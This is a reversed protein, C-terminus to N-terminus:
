RNNPSPRIKRLFIEYLSSYLNWAVLNHIINWLFFVIIYPDM